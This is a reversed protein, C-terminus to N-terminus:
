VYVNNAVTSCRFSIGCRGPALQTVLSRGHLTPSVQIWAGCHTFIITTHLQCFPTGSAPEIGAPEVLSHTPLLLFSCLEATLSLPGLMCVAYERIPGVLSDVPYYTNLHVVRYAIVTFWAFSQLHLRLYMRSLLEQGTLEQQYRYPEQQKIGLM